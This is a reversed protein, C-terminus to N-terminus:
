ESSQRIINIIESPYNMEELVRIAGKITSIGPLIRYTMEFKNEEEIVEMKYNKLRLQRLRDKKNDWKDCISVYHTTLLFDVHPQTESLYKLFAYASQTAEVPNTGSYLEDFISFHRYKKHYDYEHICDLIEKCRRSEAQFLSDRGSTDPINLYSHFHTYPQIRCTTYYGVGFQQSFILNIATTKLFTTKGSANPGTIVMQHSLDVDNKVCASHNESIHPPYYQQKIYRQSDKESDHEKDSDSEKESDPEKESESDTSEDVVTTEPQQEYQDVFTAYGLVGSELNKWVGHMQQIYGEFGMAYSLSFEYDLNTHLEYYCKLMYGIETIKFMNCEFPNIPVLEKEIEELVICHKEIDECFSKFKTKERNLELFLKMKVVSHSVFKKLECLSDNMSQTNKYFRICQMTNQYMQLLYLAFTALFYIVTEAKFSEMSLLAKGIFHNRAIMKLCDYYVEWTIEIGQIKLIIFPFILLLLPIIFSMLPAFMNIITLSQLFSASKNFDKIFSWELYGYKELFGPDHKLINWTQQIEECPVQYEEAESSVMLPITKLVDQSEQLFSIDTTYYKNWEPLLEKAYQTKPNCLYDYMTKELPNEVVLELDKAVTESLEFVNSKDLYTIPLRFVQISDPGSKEITKEQIITTNAEVQKELDGFNQAFIACINM